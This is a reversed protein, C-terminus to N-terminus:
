ASSSRRALWIAWTSTSSMPITGPCRTISRAGLEGISAAVQNATRLAPPTTTQVMGNLRARSSTKMASLASIVSASVSVRRAASQACAMAWRASPATRSPARTSSNWAGCPPLLPGESSCSISPFGSVKVFMAVAASSTASM